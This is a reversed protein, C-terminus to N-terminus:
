PSPWAGAMIKMSHAQHSVLHGHVAEVRRADLARVAVDGDLEGLVVRVGDRDRGSAREARASPRPQACPDGAWGGPRMTGRGAPAAFSVRHAIRRDPARDVRGLFPDTSGEVVPVAPEPRGPEAITVAFVPRDAFVDPRPVHRGEDLPVEAARVSEDGGIAEQRVVDEPQGVALDSVPRHDVGVPEEDVVPGDVPESGVVGPHHRIEEVHVFVESGDALAEVDRDLADDM